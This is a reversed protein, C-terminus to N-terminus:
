PLFPKPQRLLKRGSKEEKKRCASLMGLWCAVKAYKEFNTLGQNTQCGQNTMGSNLGWLGKKHYRM